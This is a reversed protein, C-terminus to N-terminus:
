SYPYVLPLIQTLIYCQIRWGGDDIYESTGVINALSSEYYCDTVTVVHGGQVPIAFARVQYQKGYSDPSNITAVLTGNIRIKQGGYIGGGSWSAPTQLHVRMICDTPVTWSTSWSGNSNQYRAIGGEVQNWRWIRYHEPLSMVGVQGCTYTRHNSGHDVMADDFDYTYTTGNIRQENGISYNNIGTTPQGAKLRYVIGNSDTFSCGINYLVRKNTM